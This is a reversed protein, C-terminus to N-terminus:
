VLSIVKVPKGDKIAVKVSRHEALTLSLKGDLAAKLEDSLVEDYVPVGYMSWKDGYWRLVQQGKFTTYALKGGNYTEVNADAAVEKAAGALQAMVAKVENIAKEREGTVTGDYSVSVNYSPKGITSVEITVMM